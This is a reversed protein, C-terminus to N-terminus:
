RKIKLLVMLERANKPAFGGIDNNFYIYVDKGKKKYARIREADRELDQPSYDAGYTGHGHRRIYTFDATLPLDDLFEPWDAMCLAHGAKELMNKIEDNMWTENRFEFAHRYKYKKLAKIFHSLRETEAKFAPPFQWLVVPIKKQMPKIRDFLRRLPEEPENLKKIHTIYRSGKVAASFDQPTERMWKAFTQEKPLRYFTVNFEVTRFIGAYYDLWKSKALGEPYFVARWHDYSFGSTGVFVEPM